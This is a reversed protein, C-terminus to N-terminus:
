KFYVSNGVPDCEVHLPTFDRNKRQLATLRDDQMAAANQSIHSSIHEANDNNTNVLLHSDSPQQLASNNQWVPFNTSPVDSFSTAYSLAFPSSDKGNTCEKRESSKSITRVTGNAVSGNMRSDLTSAMDLTDEKSLENVPIDDAESGLLVNCYINM